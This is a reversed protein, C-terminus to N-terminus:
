AVAYHQRWLFPPQGHIDALDVVLIGDGTLDGNLFQVLYLREAELREDAIPRVLFLGTLRM